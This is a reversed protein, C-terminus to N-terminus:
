EDNKEGNKKVAAEATGDAFRIRINGANMAEQVGTLLVSLVATCFIATHRTRRRNAKQIM